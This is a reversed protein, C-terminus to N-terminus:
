VGLEAFPTFRDGSFLLWLTVVTKQKQPVATFIGEHSQNSMQRIVWKWKFSYEGGPSRPRRQRRRQQKRRWIAHRAGRRLKTLKPQTLPARDREGRVQCEQRAALHASVAPAAHEQAAAPPVPFSFSIM